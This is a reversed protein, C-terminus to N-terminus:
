QGTSENQPFDNILRKLTSAPIGCDRALSRMSKGKKLGEEVKARIAPESYIDEIATRLDALSDEVGM